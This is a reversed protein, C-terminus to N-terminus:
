AIPKIHNEKQFDCVNPLRRLVKPERIKKQLNKFDVPQFPQEYPNKQNNQIHKM